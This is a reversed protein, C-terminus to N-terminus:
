PELKLAFSDPHHFDPTDAPHRLAWYSLTGSTEEVVASVGLRLPSTAYRPDVRELEASAELELRGDLTRTAIRPALAEDKLPGGDRYGRFAYAAWEGSPAFNLEHSASAGNAAVFLEFCTHEWLKDGIGPPRPAPIRVRALDAHLVFTLSLIGPSMPRVSVEIDRVRASLTRPHCILHISSL